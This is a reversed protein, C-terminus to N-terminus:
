SAKKGCGLGVEIMVKQGLQEAIANADADPPLEMESEEAGDYMQKQLEPDALIYLKKNIMLASNGDEALCNELLKKRLPTLSDVGTANLMDGAEPQEAEPQKAVKKKGFRKLLSMIGM